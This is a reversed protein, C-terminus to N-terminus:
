LRQQERHDDGNLLTTVMGDRWTVDAQATGRASTMDTKRLACLGSTVKWSDSLVWTVAGFNGNADITTPDTCTYTSGPLCDDPVYIDPRKDAVIHRVWGGNRYARVAVSVGGTPNENRVFCTHVAADVRALDAATDVQVMGNNVGYTQFDGATLVEQPVFQKWTVAM